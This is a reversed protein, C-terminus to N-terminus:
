NLSEGTVVKKALEFEGWNALRQSFSARVVEDNSDINYAETWAAIAKQKNGSQAYLTAMNHLADHKDKKSMNPDDIISEYISIARNPAKSVLYDALARKPVAKESGDIHEEWLKCAAEFEKESNELQSLYLLYAAAKIKNSPDIEFHQRLLLGTESNIPGGKISFKMKLRLIRQDDPSISEARSLEERAEEDRGQDFLFDAYQIHIGAYDPFLGIARNFIEEAIEFQEGKELEVACNGISAATNRADDQDVRGVITVTDILNRIKIGIDRIASRNSVKNLIQLEIHLQQLEAVLKVGPRRVITESTQTSKVEDSPSQQQEDYVKTDTSIVSKITSVLRPRCDRSLKTRDYTIQRFDKVDFPSNHVSQNLLVVTKELAHAFGLEYMVNANSGTIDAIVLDARKISDQIQISIRGPSSIEDARYVAVESNCEKSAQASSDKIIHYVDDFNEDFPMIIFINKM